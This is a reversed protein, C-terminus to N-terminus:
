RDERVLGPDPRVLAIEDGGDIGGGVAIESRSRRLIEVPRREFQQGARRYVVSRGNELFVGEPPVRLVDDLRDVAVRATASMGPRIRADADRLRLRVDFNRPPPFGARFDTRALASIDEIVADFDRDPIADIRVAATQDDQLRGRDGEEAQATFFLGSLDPLEAIAAGPWARDGERFDQPPAMPTGTRGNPLLHFMGDAPARIELGARSAIARDLDARVKDRQRELKALDAAAALRDAEAKREAENLRQEADAIELRAREVDLRAVLDEVGADLRAREVDQRAKLLATQSEGAKITATARSQDVDAEARRLESTKDQITRELTSGDFRIVVDGAHVAAGSRALSVIQLDGSQSPATLTITRMPRIEGRLELREVFAGREVSATPVGPAASGSRTAYVFAAAAAAIAAAGVAVALRRRPREASM